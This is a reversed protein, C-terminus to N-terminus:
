SMKSDREMKLVPLGSHLKLRSLGEASVPLGGVLEPLFLVEVLDPEESRYYIVNKAHSWEDYIPFLSANGKLPACAVLTAHKERYVLIVQDGWWGIYGVQCGFYPNYTAIEWSLVEQGAVQARLRFEVDMLDPKMQKSRGEVWAIRSGNEEVAAGVIEHEYGKEDTFVAPRNLLRSALAIADSQDIGSATLQSVAFFGMKDPNPFGRPYSSDSSTKDTM